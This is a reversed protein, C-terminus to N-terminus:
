IRSYVHTTQIDDSFTFNEVWNLVERQINTTFHEADSYKAIVNDDASFPSIQSAM